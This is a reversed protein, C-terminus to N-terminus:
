TWLNLLQIKSAFVAFHRKM